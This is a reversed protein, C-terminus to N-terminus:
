IPNANLPIRIFKFSLNYKNGGGGGWCSFRRGIIEEMKWSNVSSKLIFVQALGILQQQLKNENTLYKGDCQSILVMPYNREQRFIEERLTHIENSEIGIPSIGITKEDLKCNDKLFSVLVPRTAIPHSSVFTSIDSIQLLITVFTHDEYKVIGIETIWQRGKVDKDPHTYMISYTKPESKDALYTRVYSKNFGYSNNKLLDGISIYNRSSRKLWGCISKMVDNFSDTGICRFNNVYILM